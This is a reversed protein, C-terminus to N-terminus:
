WKNIPCHWAELATKWKVFCGCKSCREGKPGKVLFECGQCIALRRAKEEASVKKFGSKAAQGAATIANRAMTLKSPIPPKNRRMQFPGADKPRERRIGRAKVEIGNHLIM